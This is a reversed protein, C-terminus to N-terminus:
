PRPPNPRPPKPGFARTTDRQSRKTRSLARQRALEKQGLERYDPSTLSALFEVIDDFGIRWWGFIKPGERNSRATQSRAFLTFRRIFFQFNITSQLACLRNERSQGVQPLKSISSLEQLSSM